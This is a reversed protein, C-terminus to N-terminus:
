RSEMWNRSHKADTKEKAKADSTSRIELEKKAISLM